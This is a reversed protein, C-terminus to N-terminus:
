PALSILFKIFFYWGIIWGIFVIAWITLFVAMFVRSGRRVATREGSKWRNLLALNRVNSKYWISFADGVIPIAGILNNLIVNAGMRTLVSVPLRHRLGEIVLVLGVSSALIDGVAPFLGIIPDLGIRINTGPIRIIDDM